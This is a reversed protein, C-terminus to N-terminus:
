ILGDYPKEDEEYHGHLQRYEERIQNKDSDEHLKFMHCTKGTRVNEAYEAERSLTEL